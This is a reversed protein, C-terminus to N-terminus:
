PTTSEDTGSGHPCVCLYRSGLALEPRKCFIQAIVMAASTCGLAGLFGFNVGVFMARLIAFFSELRDGGELCIYSEEVGLIQATLIAEIMAKIMAQTNEYKQASVFRSGNKRYLALLLFSLRSLNAVQECM